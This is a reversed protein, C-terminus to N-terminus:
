IYPSTDAAMINRQYCLDWVGGGVGRIEHYIMIPAETPDGETPDGGIADGGSRELDLHVLM